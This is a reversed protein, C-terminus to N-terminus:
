STQSLRLKTGERKKERGKREERGCCPRLQLSPTYLEKALYENVECKGPHPSPAGPVHMYRYGVSCLALWVKYTRSEQALAETLDHPYFYSFYPYETFIVSYLYPTQQGAVAQGRVLSTPM